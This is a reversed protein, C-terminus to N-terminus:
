QKIVVSPGVDMFAIVMTKLDQVLIVCNSASPIFSMMKSSSLMVSTSFFQQPLRSMVFDVSQTEAVLPHATDRTSTDRWNLSFGVVTMM